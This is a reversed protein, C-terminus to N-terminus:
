CQSKKVSNEASVPKNQLCPLGLKKLHGSSRSLLHSVENTYASESIVSSGSTQTEKM